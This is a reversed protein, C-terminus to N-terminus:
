LRFTSYDIGAAACAVKYYNGAQIAEVLRNQREPTLKTPRGM